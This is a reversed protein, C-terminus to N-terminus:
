QIENKKAIYNIQQIKAAIAVDFSHGFSKSKELSMAKIEINEAAEKVAADFSKTGYSKVFGQITRFKKQFGFLLDIKLESAATIAADKRKKSYSYSIANLQNKKM